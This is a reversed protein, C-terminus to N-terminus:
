IYKLLDIVISDHNVQTCLGQIHDNLLENRLKNIDQAFIGTLRASLDKLLDVFKQKNSLQRQGLNSINGAQVNLRDLLLRESETVNCIDTVETQLQTIRTNLSDM